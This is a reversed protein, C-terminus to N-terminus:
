GRSLLYQVMEYNGSSCAVMLPTKYFSDQVDVPVGQRLALDLSELDGNKVCYNVNVYVKEPKDIYWGSDNMIPHEPPHDQDFRRSDSCNYYTEIMFNPPGGDRRRAMLEMPLTCIPLPLVFKGQKKGGKGGKQGKKTKPEYSSLLFPKKIYRVGKIFDNINVCGQRGKDLASIVLHLQDPSVPAKLEELASVFTETTVTDSDDGFAQRLEIEYEHSWDHLTLVWPDSMLSGDSSKKGKGQQKEAKQLEKAAAKHGADKAIQRPSLGEQNKLKPNCGSVCCM